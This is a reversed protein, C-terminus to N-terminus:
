ARGTPSLLHSVPLQRRPVSRRRTTPDAALVRRRPYGLDRSAPGGSWATPQAVSSRGTAPLLADELERVRPVGSVRVLEAGARDFAVVTPTRM